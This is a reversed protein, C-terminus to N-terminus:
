VRRVIAATPNGMSDYQFHIFEFCKKCLTNSNSIRLLKRSIKIFINCRCDPLNDPNLKFWKRFSNKYYLPLPLLPEQGKEDNLSSM